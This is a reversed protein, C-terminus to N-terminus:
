YPGAYNWYARGTRWRDYRYIHRGYIPAYYSTYPSAYYGYSPAYYGHSPAYYAMTPAYYAATPAYYTTVAPAYYSATPYCATVVQAEAERDLLVASVLLAALAILTKM